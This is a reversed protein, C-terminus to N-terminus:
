TENGSRVEIFALVFPTGFVLVLGLWSLAFLFRGDVSLALAPLALLVLSLPRRRTVAYAGISVLFWLLSTPLAGPESSPAHGALEVSGVYLGAVAVLLAGSLLMWACIDSLSFLVRTARVNNTGILGLTANLPRAASLAHYPSVAM